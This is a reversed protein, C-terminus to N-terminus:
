VVAIVRFDPFGRDAGFRTTAVYFDPREDEDEKRVSFNAPLYPSLTSPFGTAEVVFRRDEFPVGRRKTYDRAFRVMREAAEKLSTAWYESEFRKAGDPMGGSLRSLYAYQYPHLRIMTRIHLAFFVGWLITFVVHAAPVGGITSRMRRAIAPLFQAVALGALAALPPLLFLFHRIGDYITSGLLIAYIVPFLIAFVLLGPGVAREWDSKRLAVVVRGIGHLLGLLYILLIPFPLKVAFYVPLYHWPLNRAPVREGLYLVAGGNWRFKSAASFADTLGSVPHLLVAPWFAATLLLAIAFSLILKKLLGRLVAPEGTGTGRVSFAWTALVLFLYAMVLVGGIRIGLALGLAFGLGVATRWRIVPLSKALVLIAFLSWVYGAAFPIDKANILSHGYWTPTSALFLVAWLGASPGGLLRALRFAGVLLFIGMLANAARRAILGDVPLAAALLEAPADFLGGYLFFNHTTLASRDEGFTGIFRLVAKGYTRNQYIEDWSYGYDGLTAFFVVCLTVIVLLALLDRRDSWM